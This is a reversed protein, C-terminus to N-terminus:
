EEENINGISDDEKEKFQQKKLELLSDKQFNKLNRDIKWQEFKKDIVINKFNRQMEYVNAFSKNEIMNIGNYFPHSKTIQNQIKKKWANVTPKNIGVSNYNEYLCGVCFSDIVISDPDDKNKNNDLIMQWAKEFNTNNKQSKCFEDFYCNKHFKKNCRFCKLYIYMFSVDLETVLLAETNRKYEKIKKSCIVCHSNWFEYLCCKDDKKFNPIVQIQEIPYEDKEDEDDEVGDKNVFNKDIEEFDKNIEPSLFGLFSLNVNISM